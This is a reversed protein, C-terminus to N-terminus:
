RGLALVVQSLKYGLQLGIRPDILALPLLKWWLRRSFSQLAILVIL